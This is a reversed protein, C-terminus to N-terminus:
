RSTMSLLRSLSTLMWVAKVEKKEELPSSPMWCSLLLLLSRVPANLRKAIVLNKFSEYSIKGENLPDAQMMYNYCQKENIKDGLDEMALKFDKTRPLCTTLINLTM